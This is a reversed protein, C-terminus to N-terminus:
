PNAGESLLVLTPGSNDFCQWYNVCHQYIGDFNRWGAYFRRRVVETPVDHGGQSVRMVVRALADDVTPLKLFILKVTYGDSRWRAIRRSYTRGSLTTEFAFSAGEAASRDIEEIM